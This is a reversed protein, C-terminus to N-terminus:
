VVEVAVLARVPTTRRGYPDALRKNLRRHPPTGSRERWSTGHSRRRRDRAGHLPADLSQGTEAVRRGPLVHFDCADIDLGDDVKGQQATQVAFVYVDAVHAPGM